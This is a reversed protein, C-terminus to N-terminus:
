REAFVRGLGAPRLPGALSPHDFDSLRTAEMMVVFATGRLARKSREPRKNTVSQYDIDAGAMRICETSLAM